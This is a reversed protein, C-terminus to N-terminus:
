HKVFSFSSPFLSSAPTSSSWPPLPASLGGESAFARTARSSSPPGGQGLPMGAEGGGEVKSLALSLCVSWHSLSPHTPPEAKDQLRPGCAVPLHPPLDPPPPPCHASRQVNGYWAPWGTCPCQRSWGFALGSETYGSECQM